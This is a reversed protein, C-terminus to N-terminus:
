GLQAAPVYKATPVEEHTAQAAPLNLAVAPDVVQVEHAIPLNAAVAPNVLQVAHAAPWTLM